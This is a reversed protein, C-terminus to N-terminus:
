IPVGEVALNLNSIGVQFFFRLCYHKISIKSSEQQELAQAESAQLQESLEKVTTQTTKFVVWSQVIRLVCVM